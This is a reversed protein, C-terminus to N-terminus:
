ESLLTDLSMGLVEVDEGQWIEKKIQGNGIDAAWGSATNVDHLPLLEPNRLKIMISGDLTRYIGGNPVQLLRMVTPQKRNEETM